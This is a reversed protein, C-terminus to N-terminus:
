FVTVALSTSVIDFGEKARKAAQTGNSCYFASIGHYSIMLDHITRTLSQPFSNPAYLLSSTSPHLHYSLLPFAYWAKRNKKAVERIRTIVKEIEPHPDPSPVPYGLSLSLDYPGIFLADKLSWKANKVVDSVPVHYAGVGETAAIEELNEVAERTEIQIM